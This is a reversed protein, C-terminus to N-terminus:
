LGSEAQKETPIASAVVSNLLEVKGRVYRFRELRASELAQRLLAGVDLGSEAKELSRSSAHLAPTRPLLVPCCDHFPEASVDHTGIKRAQALIELKDSGALPRFVPMHVAADVAVMKQLTQSAVQGLSDGTVLALAHERRALRQALRLMMRRYLLIRCGEPARSAIERQISELPVLYLKANLQCPTLQRVLERAVHISSEGASAGSSYFHAFSLHAGRHMMRYAAVASDFGGSLLCMMRGATNPPLGGPGDYRRAYVLAPGPSIEIRCTMEPQALEVRADRGAERLRELLYRGVTAEIEMSNIPFSKDSRKARVAFTHFAMPEAEQWAASCLANIDHEVARAVSFNSIGPVRGLRVIAEAIAEEDVGMVVRDGPHEPRSVGLGALTQRLAHDLRALFFRRNRGKLWLEHYHVVIAINKM